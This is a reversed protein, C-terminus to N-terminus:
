SSRCLTGDDVLDLQMDATLFVVNGDVMYNWLCSSYEVKTHGLLSKIRRLVSTKLARPDLPGERALKDLILLKTVM